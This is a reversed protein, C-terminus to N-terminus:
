VMGELEKNRQKFEKIKARYHARIEDLEERTWKKTSNDNELAEVRELGIKAILRPRYNGINGSLELNCRKNCQKHVNDENFRLQSAAGRTRFHGACWEPADLNGCSICPELYDRLRIFENFVKQTENLWHSIPKLDKKRERHAKEAKKREKERGYEIACPIPQCV